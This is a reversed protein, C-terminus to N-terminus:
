RAKPRKRAAPKARPRDSAKKQESCGELGRHITMELRRSHKARPPPPLPSKSSRGRSGALFSQVGGFVATGGSVHLAPTKPTPRPRQGVKKCFLGGLFSRCCGWLFALLATELASAPTPASQKKGFASVRRWGKEGLFSRDEVGTLVRYAPTKPPQVPTEAGGKKAM